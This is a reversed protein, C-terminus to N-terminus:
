GFNLPSNLAPRGSGRRRLWSEVKGRRGGMLQSLRRVLEACDAGFKVYSITISHRNVLPRLGEPLEAPLPMEAGDVLVPIVRIDGAIAAEIEMRVFDGPKGLRAVGEADAVDLWGRGIVAILVRCQSLARSIVETFDLGLAITDVDIFINERGFEVALRDYLRGAFFPEDERRYSIFIASSFEEAALTTGLIRPVTPEARHRGPPSPPSIRRWARYARRAGPIIADMVM